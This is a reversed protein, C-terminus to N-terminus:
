ITKGRLVNIVQEPPGAHTLEGKNLVLLIDALRMHDERHTVMIVTCRGRLKAILQVFAQENEKGLSHSPEDFLMIAAPKIYARALNIRQRLMFSIPKANEGSIITDLGDPLKMIEELACAAKLAEMCTHETASPEAMLLNERVTGPFLDVNQPVYAISQRLASPDFQRIDVGDLRISGGQPQYMGLALKLLSSKGSGNNGRIAIIQGPQAEFSVGLLAPEHDQTYRLSVRHFVLHGKVPPLSTAAISDHEMPTALMKQIQATSTVLQQIRTVSACAMQMPSVIRWILMMAAILAGTTIAQDIVMPVGFGLTSIGGLTMLVYSATETIQANFGARFSALSGQASVQRWRQLWTEELGNLRIAHLKALTETLFEHRLSIANSSIRALERTRNKMVLLLIGYALLLVIPVVALWHTLAVMVIIYGALLPMEFFLASLPGTFFERVSEFDRLRALQASVASRETHVPPLYLLKEFVKCSIFHDIRGGFYALQKVRLHRLGIEASLALLVGICLMPLGHASGSGIIHDYLAMNYYTPALALVGILLSIVFIHRVLPYFRKLNRSINVNADNAASATMQSFLLMTTKKNPAAALDEPTALMHPVDETDLLIVPLWRVDLNRPRVHYLTSAFGLRATIDRFEELGMSESQVPIAERIQRQAGKWGLADLMPYLIEQWSSRDTYKTHSAPEFNITTAPQNM